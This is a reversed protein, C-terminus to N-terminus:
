KITLVVKKGLENELLKEIEKHDKELVTNAMMSNDHILIVENDTVNDITM